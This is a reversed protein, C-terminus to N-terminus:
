VYVRIEGNGIGRQQPAQDTDRGIKICDANRGKFRKTQPLRFVIYQGTRSTLLRRM